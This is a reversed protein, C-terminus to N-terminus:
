DDSFTRIDYDYSGWLCQRQQRRKVPTERAISHWQNFMLVIIVSASLGLAAPWKFCLLVFWAFVMLRPFRVFWGLVHWLWVVLPLCLLFWAFGTNGYAAFGIVFVLMFFINSLHKMM